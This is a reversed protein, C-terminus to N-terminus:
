RRVGAAIALLLWGIMFSIGGLPTIAGLWRQEEGFLRESVGMVYLSGSFLVIGLLFLWGAAAALRPAFQSAVWAAAFIGLAHYMHYQAGTQWWAMQHEPLDDLGHAAFAGTFVALGAAIAAIIALIRPM